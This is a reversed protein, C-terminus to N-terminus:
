NKCLKHVDAASLAVDAHQVRTIVKDREGDHHINFSSM